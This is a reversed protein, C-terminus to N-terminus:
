RTLAAASEVLVRTTLLYPRRSTTPEELRGVRAPRNLKLTGPRRIYRTYGAATFGRLAPKYSVVVVRRATNSRRVELLEPKPRRSGTVLHAFVRAFNKM